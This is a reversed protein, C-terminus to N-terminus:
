PPKGKSPEARTAYAIAALLAVAAGAGALPWWLALWPSRLHEDWKCTKVVDIRSDVKLVGEMGGNGFYVGFFPGGAWSGWEPDEFKRPFCRKLVRWLLLPRDSFLFRGTSADRCPVTCRICEKIKTLRVSEGSPSVIDVHRWTEEEWPQLDLGDVVINARFSEVPYAMNGCLEGTFRASSRSALLLPAMDAFHKANGIVRESYAADTGREHALLARSLWPVIPQYSSMELGCPSDSRVLAFRTEDEFGSIRKKDDARRNFYTTLWSSAEVHIRGQLKGLLWGGGSSTSKGGCEVQVVEGAAYAELATPVACQPMGPADLFLSRRDEALSVRVTMMAPMKRSSIHEMAAVARGDRDVVCWQRDFELGTKTLRATDVRVGQCAKVPYIWLEEVTAGM